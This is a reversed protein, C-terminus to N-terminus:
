FVAQLIKSSLSDEGPSKNNKLRQIIARIEDVTPTDSNCEYTPVSVSAFPSNTNATPPTHSFLEAVGRNDKMLLSSEELDILCSSM